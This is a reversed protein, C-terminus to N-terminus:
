YGRILEQLQREEDETREREKPENDFWKPLKIKEGKLEYVDKWSNVISNEIMKYQTEEDYKNLKNVLTNVARESNVAKIKKRLELFENFITNVKLSNFYKKEVNVNVNGNVVYNNDYNSVNVDQHTQKQNTKRSTKPKNKTQKKLANQNGKPAGKSRQSNRKSIDLPRKLNVFIKKQRENLTPEIDKFVYEVIALLLEQQENKDLLTILDYYEEYITFSKIDNM